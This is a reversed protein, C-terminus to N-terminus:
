RERTLSSVSVIRLAGERREVRAEEESETIHERGGLVVREEIRSFVVAGHAEIVIRQSLVRYDYADLDRFAATGEALSATYQECSMTARQIRGNIDTNQEIRCDRALPAALRSVDRARAADALETMLARVAVASLRAEASASGAAGFTLTLALAAVLAARPM